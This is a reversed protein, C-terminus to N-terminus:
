VQYDVSALVLNVALKVRRVSQAPALKYVATVITQKMAPRMTGHLFLQNLHAM